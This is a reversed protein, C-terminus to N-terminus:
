RYAIELDGHQAERKFVDAQACDRCTVALHRADEWLLDLNHTGKVAFVTDADSTFRQSSERIRIITAVPIGKTCRQDYATAVHSKDPSAVTQMISHICPPEGTCSAMFIAALLAITKKPAKHCM